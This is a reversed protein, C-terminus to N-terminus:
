QACYERVTALLRNLPVPKKLVRAVTTPAPGPASSHVVIPVTAFESRKRLQEVFDWGNMEPMLLDLIVLCLNEIASVKSLADKGDIAAVVAYGSLELAECMAERLEVEDEVVLVTHSV